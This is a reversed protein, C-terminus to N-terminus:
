LFHSSIFYTFSVTSRILEATYRIVNHSGGVKKVVSPRYSNLHVQIQYRSSYSYPAALEFFETTSTSATIREALAESVSHDQRTPLFALIVETTMM